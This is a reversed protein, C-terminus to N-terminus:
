RNDQLLFVLTTLTAGFGAGGAAYPATKWFLPRIKIEESFSFQQINAANDAIEEFPNIIPMEAISTPNLHTLPLM